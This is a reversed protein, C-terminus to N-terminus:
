KQGKSKLFKGLDVDETKIHKVIWRTLSNNLEMTTKLSHGTDVEKKLQQFEDMFQKHLAKHAEYKPYNSSRQLREEDAFHKVVYDGVLNLTKRTEELSFAGSGMSMLANLRNVLEKHQADIEAVGVELDGTLTIFDAM